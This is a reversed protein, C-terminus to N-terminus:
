ERGAEDLQRWFFTVTLGGILLLASVFGLLERFVQVYALVEPSFRLALMESKFELLIGPLTIIFPVSVLIMTQDFSIMAIKISEKVARFISRGKLLVLPGTFIFLAQFVLGVFTTAAWGGARFLINGGKPLLLAPVNFCAFVFASAIITVGVLPVYRRFTGKLAEAMSGSRKRIADAFLFITVGQFFAHVFVDLIIDLRGLVVPMLLRHEPYHTLAERFGKKLFLAWFSGVFGGPANVYLAVLIVKLALYLILPIWINFRRLLLFTEFFALWASRRGIM